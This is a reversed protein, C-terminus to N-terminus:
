INRHVVDTPLVLRPTIGKTSIWIVAHHAHMERRGPAFGKRLREPMAALGHGWGLNVGGADVPTTHAGTGDGRTGFPARRLFEADLLDGFDTLLMDVGRPAGISGPHIHDLQMVAM